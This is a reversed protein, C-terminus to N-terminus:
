SVRVAAQLQLLWEGAPLLARSKVVNQLATYERLRWVRGDRVGAQEVGVDDVVTPVSQRGM